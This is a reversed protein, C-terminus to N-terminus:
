NKLIAQIEQYWNESYSGLRKRLRDVQDQHMLALERKVEDPMAGMYSGSSKNVRKSSERQLQGSIDDIELYACVRSLMVAPDQELEEFFAIFVDNQDYHSLWRDLNDAYSYRKWLRPSRARRILDDIDKNDAKMHGDRVQKEICSWTAYIPNRLILIIKKIKLDDKIIKIIDSSLMIYAPTIEGKLSSPAEPRYFMNQYWDLSGGPKFFAYDWRLDPKAKKAEEIFPRLCYGAYHKLRNMIMWKFRFVARDVRLTESIGPDISDFYHVEKLPPMWVDPHKSLMAHLWTTGSRPAGIGLFDPIPRASQEGQVPKAEDQKHMTNPDWRKTTSYVRM